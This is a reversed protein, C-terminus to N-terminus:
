IRREIGCSVYGRDRLQDLAMARKSYGAAYRVNITAGGTAIRAQTFGDFM